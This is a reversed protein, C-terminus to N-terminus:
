SCQGYLWGEKPKEQEQDPITYKPIETLEQVRKIAEQKGTDNLKDFLELLEVIDPYQEYITFTLEEINTNNRFYPEDYEGEKLDVIEQILDALTYYKKNFNVSSTLYILPISLAECLKIQTEYKPERLGLEYQQLTGTAIGCKEALEKQTIGREKRYKKINESIIPNKSM